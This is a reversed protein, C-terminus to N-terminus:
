RKTKIKKQNTKDKQSTNKFSEQEEYAHHM